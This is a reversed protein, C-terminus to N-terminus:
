FLAPGMTYMLYINAIITIIIKIMILKKIILKIILMQSGSVTCTHTNLSSYPM